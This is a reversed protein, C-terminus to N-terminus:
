FIQFGLFFSFTGTKFPLDPYKFVNTGSFEYRFSLFVFEYRLRLELMAGINVPNLRKDINQNKISIESKNEQPLGVVACAIVSANFSSSSPFLNVGIGVPASINTYSCSLDYNGYATDASIGNASLKRDSIGLELYAFFRKAFDMQFYAGGGVGIKTQPARFDWPGQAPFTTNCAGGITLGFHMNDNARPGPNQASVSPPFPLIFAFVMGTITLFIRITSRKSPHLSSSARRRIIGWSEVIPTLPYKIYKQM